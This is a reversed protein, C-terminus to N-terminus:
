FTCETEIKLPESISVAHFAEQRPDFVELQKRASKYFWGHLSIREQAALEGIVSDALMRKLELLVKYRGVEEWLAESNSDFAASYLGLQSEREDSQFDNKQKDGASKALFKTYECGSHGY